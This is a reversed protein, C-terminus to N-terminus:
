DVYPLDTYRGILMRYEAASKWDPSSSVGICVAPFFLYMNVSPKKVSGGDHAVVNSNAVDGYGHRTEESSPECGLLPSRETPARAADRDKPLSTNM